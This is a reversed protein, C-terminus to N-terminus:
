ILEGYVMNIIIKTIKVKKLKNILNENSDVVVSFYESCKGIYKNPAFEQEFLVEVEKNIFKKLFISELEKNLELFDNVRQKKIVDKVKDKINAARTYKRESYPFVHLNYFGIKKCFELSQKHDKDTETPFGCIYDTTFSTNESKTRIKNVLELFQETSYKRNMQKLVEDSGSQLCIHWHQCFRNKNSTVLDVIEDSIQFPEVSSIRIRFEGPIDNIMKLLHYFDVNEKDLYGATNVGTLVIEKYNSNILDKIENLIALHNKSRQRGRTFPIICYSCMFNCGEQIKLFARTHENFHDVKSDEFETELLLNSVNIYKEKNNNFYEELVNIISSKFKNGIIIDVNDIDQEAQSFCGCVLVISDPNQKKAKNITNRSKADATNTVSCSNIIYLDAKTNFDVEILGYSLLDNKIVNSEYLNVKCGLTQIAFTKLNSLNNM